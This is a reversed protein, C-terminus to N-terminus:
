TVHKSGLINWSVHLARGPAINSVSFAELRVTSSSITGLQMDNHLDHGILKRNQMLQAVQQQVSAFSPANALHDERIGNISTLYNTVKEEPRVYSHLVVKGQGDVM